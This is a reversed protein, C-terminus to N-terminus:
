SFFDFLTNLSKFNLSPITFFLIFIDLSGKKKKKIGCKLDYSFGFAIIYFLIFEAKVTSRGSQQLKQASNDLSQIFVSPLWITFVDEM